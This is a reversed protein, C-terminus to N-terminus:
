HKKIKTEIIALESAFFGTAIGVNFTTDGVLEVGHDLLEAAVNLLDITFEYQPWLAFNGNIVVLIGSNNKLKFYPATPKVAGSSSLLKINTEVEITM